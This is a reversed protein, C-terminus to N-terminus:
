FAGHVHSDHLNELATGEALSIIRGNRVTWANSPGFLEAHHHPGRAEAVQFRVMRDRGKKTGVLSGPLGMDAARGSYHYSNPAHSGDSTSTCVLGAAVGRRIYARTSMTVNGPHGNLMRHNWVRAKALVRLSRSM